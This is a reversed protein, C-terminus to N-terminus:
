PSAAYILCAVDKKGTSNNQLNLLDYKTSTSKTSTFTSTSTFVIKNSSIKQLFFM